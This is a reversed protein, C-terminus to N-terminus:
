LQNSIMYELQAKSIIGTKREVIEGNKYLIITPISRIGLKAPIESNEDVDMKGVKINPFENSIEEIIPEMTKCPGCWITKFDILSIGDSIIGEFNADTIKISM